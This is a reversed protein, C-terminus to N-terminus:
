KAAKVKPLVAENLIVRPHTRVYLTSCQLTCYAQNDSISLGIIVTVPCLAGFPLVVEELARSSDHKRSESPTCESHRSRKAIVYALFHELPEIKLLPM